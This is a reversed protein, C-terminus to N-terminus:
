ILTENAAIFNSRNFVKNYPGGGRLNSQIDELGEGCLLLFQLQFDTRSYM